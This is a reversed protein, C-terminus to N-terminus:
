REREIVNATRWQTLKEASREALQIIVHQVALGLRPAPASAQRKPDLLVRFSLACIGFRRKRPEGVVEGGEEPPRASTASSCSFSRSCAQPASSRAKTADALASSICAAFSRPKSRWDVAVDTSRGTVSWGSAAESRKLNASSRREPWSDGM